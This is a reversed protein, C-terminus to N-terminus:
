WFLCKKCIVGRRHIETFPRRLQTISLRNGFYKKTYVYVWDFNSQDDMWGGECFISHIRQMPPASRRPASGKGRAITVCGFDRASWFGCSAWKWSGLILLLARGKGNHCKQLHMEVCVMFLFCFVLRRPAPPHSDAWNPHTLAERRERHQIQSKAGRVRSNRHLRIKCRALSTKNANLACPMFPVTHSPEHQIVFSLAGFITGAQKPEKKSGKWCVCVCVCVFVIRSATIEKQRNHAGESVCSEAWQAWPNIKCRM